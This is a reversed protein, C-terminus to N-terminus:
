REQAAVKINVNLNGNADTSPSVEFRKFHPNFPVSGEKWPFIGGYIGIDTGDTGVNLGPSSPQLRYENPYNFPYVNADIFITSLDYFQFNNYGVNTGSEHIFSNNFLNNKATSNECAWMGNSLVFVNNEFLSYRSYPNQLFINNRYISNDFVIYGSGAGIINNFFSFNIASFSTNYATFIGELVCELITFNSTTSNFYFGNKIHCRSISYYDVDESDTSIYDNLYVGTISGHSAATKLLLKGILTTAFTARTSDPHHGVGIFHLEKDIQRSVNWTGGPIFITDGNQANTIADDVQQYFSPTGGNQVAILNQASAGLGLVLIISTLILTKM